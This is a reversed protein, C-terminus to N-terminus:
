NKWGEVTHLFSDRGLPRALPLTLFGVQPSLSSTHRTYPIALIHHVRRHHCHASTACHAPWNKWGEVTHLFSATGLHSASPSLRYSFSGALSPPSSPPLDYSFWSHQGGWMAGEPPWLGSLPPRRRYVPCTHHSRRGPFPVGSGWATLSRAITTTVLCTALCYSVTCHRLYLLLCLHRYCSLIVVRYLGPFRSSCVIYM